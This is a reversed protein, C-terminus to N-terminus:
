ADRAERRLFREVADNVADAHTIPGMHGLGDLEVVRVNPLVQSLLRTVARAPARTKSGIMLLVPMQLKGFAALPTPEGFLANGWAKIHAVSAEISHRQAESRALWSGEGMWYDTFLQAATARDGRTLSEVAKEVILRIGDAENPPASWADVLSVLTPEYLALARVRAPQQVAAVLAVSAGYSHGVLVFPDGARKFVPELLAVEDGLTLQGKAPLPPGKGAGFGDPALVHFSPALREMLARWQSSSSANSHLCIIGPGNGSERFFPETM